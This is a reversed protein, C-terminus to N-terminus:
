GKKGKNEMANFESETMDSWRGGGGGEFAKDGVDRKFDGQVSASMRNIRERNEKRKQELKEEPIRALIVDSFRRTSDVDSGKKLPTSESLNALQEPDDGQVIEFGEHLKREVNRSNKNILRYGYGPKKNKVEFPDFPKKDAEDKVFEIGM